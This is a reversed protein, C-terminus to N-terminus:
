PTFNRHTEVYDENWEDISLTEGKVITAKIEEYFILAYKYSSFTGLCEEHSGDFYIVRFEKM